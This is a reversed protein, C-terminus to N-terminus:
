DVSAATGTLLATMESASVPSASFLDPNHVRGSKIVTEAPQPAAGGDAVGHRGGATVQLLIAAVSLEQRPDAGLNENLSTHSEDTDAPWKQQNTVNSYGTGIRDTRNDRRNNRANEPHEDDVSGQAMVATETIEVLLQEPATGFEKLAHKIFRALEPSRVEFSPLNIRMTFGGPSKVLPRWQALQSVAARVVWQELVALLGSAVAAGIFDDSVILGRAPHNWRLFAEAGTIRQSDPEVVPQYHMVLQGSAMASRLEAATRLREQASEILGPHFIQINGRGHSKAAYMAADADRVLYEASKGRQGYRLGISATAAVPTGGASVLPGLAALARRAIQLAQQDTADPILIAFEDGGLRAVTDSHRVVSKLRRAVEILVEDGAGHGLSDNVTKFMDLDLLILAPPNGSNQSNQAAERARDILLTRNALGTLGDTTAMRELKAQAQRLQVTREEVRQELRAYMDQLEEALLNVGSIVADVTDRAPSISLRVSLDGSSLRVIGEVLEDLRGDNAPEM